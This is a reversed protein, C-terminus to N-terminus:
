SQKQNGEDTEGTKINKMSLAQECFEKIEIVSKENNCMDLVAKLIGTAGAKMGAFRVKSLMEKMKGQLYVEVNKDM